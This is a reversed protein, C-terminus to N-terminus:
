VTARFKRREQAPALSARGFVMRTDVFDFSVVMSKFGRREQAPALSERDVHTLFGGMHHEAVGMHVGADGWGSQIFLCLTKIRKWHQQKPRKANTGPGKVKAHLSRTDSPDCTNTTSDVDLETIKRSRDCSMVDIVHMYFCIRPNQQGRPHM